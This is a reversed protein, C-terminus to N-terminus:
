LGGGWVFVDGNDLLALCHENGSVLKIPQRGEPLHGIRSPISYVLNKNSIAFFGRLTASILVPIESQSEDNETSSEINLFNLKSEVNKLLDVKLLDDNNLLILCIDETAALCKITSDFQFNTPNQGCGSHIKLTNGDGIFHRSWMSM